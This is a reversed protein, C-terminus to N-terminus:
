LNSPNITKGFMYKVGASVFGERDADSYRINEDVLIGGNLHFRLKDAINIGATFAAYNSNEVSVGAFIRNKYTFMTGATYIPTIESTRKGYITATFKKSFPINIGATLANNKTLEPRKNLSTQFLNNFSAGAFFLPHNFWIGANYNIYKEGTEVSKDNTTILGGGEGEKWYNVNKADLANTCHTAGVGLRISSLKSIKQNMSLSINVKRSEWDNNITNQFYSGIAFKKDSGLAVDGAVYLSSPDHWNLVKEQSNRLWADTWFSSYMVKVGARAEVGAIAPNENLNNLVSAPLSSPLTLYKLVKDDINEWNAAVVNGLQEQNTNLEKGYANFSLLKEEATENQVEYVPLYLKTDPTQNGEKNFDKKYKKNSIGKHTSNVFERNQNEINNPLVVKNQKEHTNSPPTIFGRKESRAINEEKTSNNNKGTQQTENYHGVIAYSVWGFLLIAAAASLKKWNFFAGKKSNEGNLMQEMRNWHQPNYPVETSNLVERSKVEFAPTADLQNVIETWHEPKYSVNGNELKEKVAKEFHTPQDLQSSIADWHPMNFAVTEGELKDRLGKEFPTLSPSMEKEFSKWANAPMAVDASELISKVKEEFPSPKVSDLRAKMQEWHQPNFPIEEGDLINKINDDSAM